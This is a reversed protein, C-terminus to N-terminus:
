SPKISNLSISVIGDWTEINGPGFTVTTNFRVAWLLTGDSDVSYIGQVDSTDSWSGADFIVLYNFGYDCNGEIPDAPTRFNVPWYGPVSVETIDGATISPSLAPMIRALRVPADVIRSPSQLLLGAITSVSFTNVGCRLYIGPTTGSPNAVDDLRLEFEISLTDTADDFVVPDINAAVWWENSLPNSGGGILFHNATDSTPGGDHTFQVAHSYTSYAANNQLAPATHTADRREYGSFDVETITPDAHNTALPPSISNALAFRLPNGHSILNDVINLLDSLLRVKASNPFIGTTSTVGPPRADSRIDASITYLAIYGTGGVDTYSGAGSMTLAPLAMAGSGSYVISHVGSGSMVLAPLLMAGVGSYVIPHEGAGIMTLAPLAM